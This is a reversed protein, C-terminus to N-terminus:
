VHEEGAAEYAWDIIIGLVEDIDEANYKYMLSILKQSKEEGLLLGLRFPNRKM